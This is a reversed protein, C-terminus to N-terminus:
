VMLYIELWIYFLFHVASRLVGIKWHWIVLPIVHQIEKPNARRGRVPASRFCIAAADYVRNCGHKSNNFVFCTTLDDDCFGSPIDSM